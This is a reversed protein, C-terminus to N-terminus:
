PPGVLDFGLFLGLPFEWPLCLPPEEIGFVAVFVPPPVVARKFIAAGKTSLQKQRDKLVFEGEGLESHARWKFLAKKRTPLPLYIGMQMHVFSGRGRNNGLSFFSPPDGHAPLAPAPAKRADAIFTCEQTRTKFAFASPTAQGSAM